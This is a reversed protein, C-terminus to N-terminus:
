GAAAEALAAINEPPVDPLISEHSPSVIYNPGFLKKLRYVEARIEDPTGFPLIHQTDVGGMFIIKGNYKKALSKADMNKAMAQIPHLVDVGAEILRPIVREISGCSHLVAKYGHRHAQDTFERFSPMIFRDFLGPSVLIDQQSGFDNGFFFGDIKDGAMGFLKENIELYFDVVHRTVAEVVDPAEYMKMFYKEMGFFDCVVHFFKSWNGSLVAQGAAVTRDIEALTETFDTYKPDPWHFDEVESVDETEAFVGGEGLSSRKKGGLIDFMPTGTNTWAHCKEPMVWRCHAGLKLGLEFDNTVEFYRYLKEISAPNPNGHWFGCSDSRGETIAHFKEKGTM